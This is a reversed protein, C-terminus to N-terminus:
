VHMSRLRRVREETLPHTSFLNALNQGKLPNVIFLHATSPHSEAENFMTRQNQRELKELASALWNPNGCLEAGRADAAYERSRSIAFQIMSAAIPALIMMLIAVVPNGGEEDNAGFISLWMFMNAIGSIAGAITATIAMTLTDRHAVHSMEHAMVGTLEESSLINILGSTAAVSANEPNRGTAFANPNPSDVIYVKPMPLNAKRALNAVINYLYHGQGVEQAKYIKLVIKDSYWYSGLNMVAAFILAILLGAKGGLVGGIFVLLASLGALLIFTKFHNM